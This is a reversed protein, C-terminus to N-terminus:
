VGQWSASITWSGLKTFYCYRLAHSLAAMAGVTPNAMHQSIRSHCYKLDPRGTFALWGIMGVGSRFFKEGDRDLQRSDEIPMSIPTRVRRFTTPDLDLNHLMTEIYSEMSLYIGDSTKIFNMGLHDIPSGETLEVPDKCRFRIAMDKMFAQVNKAPGVALCDDVYTEVLIDLDANYFVCPENLGAVFGQSVIWPHLTNMFRVPSSCAGYVVGWQRFYRGIGSVPDRLYLYRAPDAPSFPDSQLFATAIDVQMVTHGPPHTRMLASRVSALGVVHSSYNFGIGDLAEKDERFGQICVRAKWVNSRKYELLERCKTARPIGKASQSVAIHYEPHSPSLEELVPRLVGDAGRLKTNLLASLEKEHAAIIAPAEKGKLYKKWPLDKM